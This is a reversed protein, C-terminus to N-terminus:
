AGFHALGAERTELIPYASAFGALEFVRKVEGKVSTIVLAGGERALKKGFLFFERFGASAIYDLGDLDVLVNTPNGPQLLADLAESLQKGSSPEIRGSIELIQVSGQTTTQFDAMIFPSKRRFVQFPKDPAVAIKGDSGSGASRFADIM